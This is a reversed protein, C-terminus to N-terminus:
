KLGKMLIARHQLSLIVDSESALGLRIYRDFGESLKLVTQKDDLPYAKLILKKHQVSFKVEQQENRIIQTIKNLQIM